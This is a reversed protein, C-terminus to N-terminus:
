SDTERRRRRRISGVAPRALAGVPRAIVRAPRAFVRLPRGVIRLPRGLARVPDPLHPRWRRTPSVLQVSALTLVLALGLYAAVSRPWFRDRGSFTQQVQPGLAGPGGKFGGGPAFGPGIRNGFDDIAGGVGGNGSMGPIPLTTFSRDTGNVTGILNCWDGYGGETGCAVDAEAIFPNLFLLARPPPTVAGISNRSATLALFDWIFISGIVLLLTVM